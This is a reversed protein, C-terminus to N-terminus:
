YINKLHINIIRNFKLLIIYIKYYNQKNPSVKTLHAKNIDKFVFANYIKFINKTNWILLFVNREIVYIKYKYLTLKM